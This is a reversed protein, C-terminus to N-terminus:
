RQCLKSAARGQAIWGLQDHGDGIDARKIVTDDADDLRVYDPGYSVVARGALRWILGGDKGAEPADFLEAATWVWGSESVWGWQDLFRGGDDLAQRWEAESVWAPKQCNLRTWADLYPAPVSGACLGVREVIAAGAEDADNASFKEFVSLTPVSLVSSVDTQLTEDTKDKASKANKEAARSALSALWRGM